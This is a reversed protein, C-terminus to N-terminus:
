ENPRTVPVADADKPPYAPRALPAAARLAVVAGVLGHRQPVTATIADADILDLLSDLVDAAERLDAPRLRPKSVAASARLRKADRSGAVVLPRLPRRLGGIGLGQCGAPEV